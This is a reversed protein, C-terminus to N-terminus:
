SAELEGFRSLIKRKLKYIDAPKEVSHRTEEKGVFTGVYRSTPSNFHLRAITKRNNDDLLIACYSQNDRMALRAPDTKSAVIACVIHYGQWEDETTEIIAEENEADSEDDRPSSLASTLRDNVRDRIYSAMASKITAKYKDVVQRTLRGEHIQSAIMRVFEGSPETFQEELRKRVQTQLKLNSAREVIRDIDFAEKTFRALTEFDTQKLDDLRCTFFPRSDMRNTKEVDSYFHYDVGNTLIAVRADTVSFYRFLQSANEVSLESSAPKCEILMNVDGGRCIAYDVKEGRKTGVDCTFEPVVEGPDFVNYGLAKIFPMVLANKAAEETALVDRHSAIVETLRNLEAELEM